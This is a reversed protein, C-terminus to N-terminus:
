SGRSDLSQLLSKMRTKLELHHVPKILYDSIGAEICNAKAKVDDNVTVM